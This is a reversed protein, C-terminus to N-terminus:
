HGDCGSYRRCHLYNTTGAKIPRVGSVIQSTIVATAISLIKGDCSLSAIFGTQEKPQKLLHLVLRHQERVL